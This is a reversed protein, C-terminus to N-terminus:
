QITSDIYLRVMANVVEFNAKTLVAKKTDGQLVKVAEKDFNEIARLEELQELIKVIDAWLSIRGAEDNPVKGMYKAGFVNAVADAYTDIIRITQNDKFVEGETDTASVFSNIDELVRVEDGVRHLVFEGAKLAKELERQTYATNVTLEGDYVMNTASKNVATGAQVGLVWPILDVQNKVNVVNWSDAKKDFVVAQCRLGVDERMNKVWQTYLTKITEDTGAYGVANVDPYSELLNLFTQHASSDSAGGNTGGAFTMGAVAQLEAVQNWTVWENDVLESATAVTQKDLLVTGMYLSVIYQDEDAVIVVKLDNGRSGAHVAVGYNCTAKEGGGNLRYLHAEKTHLFLERLAQMEPASYEYGFISMSDTYFEQATVTFIKGGVGWNLDLAMASMGRDAITATAQPTSAFRFYCGGLIKNQISYTGGGYAM